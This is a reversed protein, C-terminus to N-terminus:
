DAVASFTREFRDLAAAFGHPARASRRASTVVRTSADFHATAGAEVLARHLARDEGSRLPPFGGVRQYLAGEFGMNAGHIPESEAEYDRQWADLGPGRHSSWDSVAVRGAWVGVGREHQRLQERLWRRPVRSDADTTAIWLTSPDLAGLGELAVECGLRRAVGVNGADCNVLTVATGSSRTIRDAWLRALTISADRCSDLVVILHRAVRARRLNFFAGELAGLSASLHMVENHAPMVVAVGATKAFTRRV